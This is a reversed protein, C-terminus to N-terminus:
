QLAIRVTRKTDLWTIEVAVPKVSPDHSFSLQSTTAQGPNLDGIWAKGTATDYLTPYMGVKSGNALILWTEVYQWGWRCPAAQTNEGTLTLVTGKTTAADGKRDAEAVPGTLTMSLPGLDFKTGAKVEARDVVVNDKTFVSDPKAIKSTLDIWAVSQSKGWIFGVRWDALDAPVVCVIDFGGKQGKKYNGTPWDKTKPDFYNIIEAKIPQPSKWLAVAPMNDGGMVLNVASTVTLTVNFVALKQGPGPLIVRRTHPYSLATRASNVTIDIHNGWDQPKGGQYIDFGIRTPAGIKATEKFQASVQALALLALAALPM